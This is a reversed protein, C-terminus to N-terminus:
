ARSSRGVMLVTAAGLVWQVCVFTGAALLMRLVDSPQAWRLVLWLLVLGATLLLPPTLIFLLSKDGLTRRVSEAYQQATQLDNQLLFVVVGSVCSFGLLSPLSASGLSMGTAAASWIGIVAYFLWRRM